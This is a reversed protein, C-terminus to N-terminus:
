IESPNKIDRGIVHVILGSCDISALQEVTLQQKLMERIQNWHIVDKSTKLWEIANTMQINM